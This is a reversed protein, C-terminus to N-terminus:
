CARMCPLAPEVAARMLRFYEFYRAFWCSASDLASECECRPDEFQAVPGSATSIRQPRYLLVLAEAATTKKEAGLGFLVGSELCAATAAAAQPHASCSFSPLCSTLASHSTGRPWTDASTPHLRPDDAAHEVEGRASWSPLGLAPAGGASASWPPRLTRAGDSELRCPGDGHTRSPRILVGSPIARSVSESFLRWHCPLCPPLARLPRTGRSPRAADVWASARPRPGPARSGPGGRPRKLTKILRISVYNSRRGRPAAPWCPLPTLRGCGGAPRWRPELTCAASM